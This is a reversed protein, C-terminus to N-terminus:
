LPEGLLQFVFFFCLCVFLCFFFFRVLATRFNNTVNERVEKFYRIIRHFEVLSKGLVYCVFISFKLGM